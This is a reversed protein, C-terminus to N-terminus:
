WCGTTDTGGANKSGKLGTHDLTLTVCDSDNKQTNSLATATLTYTTASLNSITVKYDGNETNYAAVNCGANNYAGFQTFCRELRQSTDVLNVKADSRKTRRVESQYAPYAISALIGIIAVAIMLEILTFGHQDSANTM